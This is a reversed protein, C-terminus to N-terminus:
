LTRHLWDLILEVSEAHAALIAEGREAARAFVKVQKPNKVELSLRRASSEAGPDGVTAIFLISQLHLAAGAALVHVRDRDPSIAVATRVLGKGIALCALDAGISAGIVALRSPDAGPAARLWGLVATLDKSDRGSRELSRGRAGEEGSSGAHGPLEIALARYGTKALTAPFVGWDDRSKGLSHILLIGAAPTANASPLWEDADISVGGGAAIAVKRQATVGGPVAEIGAAQGGM